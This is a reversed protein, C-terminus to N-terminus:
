GQGNARRSLTIEGWTKEDLTINFKVFKFKGGKAKEWYGEPLHYVRQGVIDPGTQEVKNALVVTGTNRATLVYPARDTSPLSLAGKPKAIYNGYVCAGLYGLMAVIGIGAIVKFVTRFVRRM